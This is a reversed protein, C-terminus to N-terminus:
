NLNATEKGHQDHTDIFLFPILRYGDRMNHQQLFYYENCCASHLQRLRINHIRM